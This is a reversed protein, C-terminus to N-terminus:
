ASGKCSGLSWCPKVMSLDARALTLYDDSSSLHLSTEATDSGILRRKKKPREPETQSLESSALPQGDLFALLSAPAQEPNKNLSEVEGLHQCSNSVM